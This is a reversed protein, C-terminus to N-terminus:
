SHDHEKLSNPVNATGRGLETSGEVTDLASEEQNLLAGVVFRRIAYGGALAGLAAAWPVWRYDGSILMVGVVLALSVSCDLIRVVFVGRARDRVAALLGYPTSLAVAMSYVLWGSVALASPMMGTVIPGGWPLLLLGIAMCGATALMLRRVAKDTSRLQDAIGSQTGRAMHAFLYSCTGAVLLMAPAAYIRAAELSGAAALSVAGIVIVRTLTLFGPRLGQLAARWFGYSAVPKWAISGSVPLRESIPLIFWGLFMGCSQGCIIAFLFSEISANGALIVAAIVGCTAVMVVLDMVIIRYFGLLAMHNRRVLDEGVFTIAALAYLMAGGITFKFGIWTMAFGALGIILSLIVFWAALGARISPNHRDLVMLSDGIFGTTIGAALVFAGYLISFLGLAEIGLLRAALMSVILTTASQTAQAM